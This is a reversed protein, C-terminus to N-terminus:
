GQCGNASCRFFRYGGLMGLLERDHLPAELVAAGEADSYTTDCDFSAWLTRMEVLNSRANHAGQPTKRWILYLAVSFSEGV